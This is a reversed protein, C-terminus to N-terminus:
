RPGAYLMLLTMRADKTTHNEYSHAVDAVFAIGDGTSLDHVVGDVVFRVNGATVVIRERTGPAHPEAREVAGARLTLEYLEARTGPADDVFLPRSVMAGDASAFQQVSRTVTRTAERADSAMEGRLLRSFPVDLATAIKWLTNITPTSQGLEVQSLMARSVGSKQALADQSLGRRKREARVADGVQPPETM